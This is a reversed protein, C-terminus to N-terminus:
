LEWGAERAMNTVVLRLRRRPTPIKKVEPGSGSLCFCSPSRCGLVLSGQRTQTRPGVRSRNGEPDVEECWWPRGGCHCTMADLYPPRPPCPLARLRPSPGQSSLILPSDSPRLLTRRAAKVRVSLWRTDPGLRTNTWVVVFFFLHVCLCYLLVCHVCM